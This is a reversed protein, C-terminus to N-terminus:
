SDNRVLKLESTKEAIQPNVQFLVPNTNHPFHNEAKDTNSIHFDHSFSRLIHDGKPGNGYKIPQTSTILM